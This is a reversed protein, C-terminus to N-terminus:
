DGFLSKIKARPDPLAGSHRSSTSEYSDPSKAAKAAKGSPSKGKKQPVGVKALADKIRKDRLYADRIFKMARHDIVSELFTEDFGYDALMANIGAKDKAVVMEDQWEPIHELTLERERQMTGEHRKRIKDVIGQPVHERPIMSLIERMETQARLLEGESKVRRQDFQAERTELDVLEGVRDKLDGITLPEAGNPMPVKIAYVQEAKLGLKKSVRDISDVPGDDNDNQSNEDESDPAFIEALSLRTEGEQVSQKERRPRLNGKDDAQLDAKLPEANTKQQISQQYREVHRMNRPPRGQYQPTETQSNSQSSNNAARESPANQQSM